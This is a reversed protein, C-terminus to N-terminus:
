QQVRCDVHESIEKIFLECYKAESLYYVPGFLTSEVLSSVKDASLPTARALDM